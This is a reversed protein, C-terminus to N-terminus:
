SRSTTPMVTRSMDEGQSPRSWWCRSARGKQVPPPAWGGNLVADKPAYLRVIYKGGGTVPKGDADTIILPYVADEPQNAGLGVQAIIARKLYYNGYVGITETNMQWGNVVRAITPM